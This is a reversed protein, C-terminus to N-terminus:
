RDTGPLLRSIALGSASEYAAWRMATLAHLGGPIGRPPRRRKQARFSAQLAQRPTSRPAFSEHVPPYNGGPARSPPMEGNAAGVHAKRRTQFSTRDRHTFVSSECFRRLPGNRHHDLRRRPIEETIAISGSMTHIHAEGRLAAAEGKPHEKLRRGLEPTDVDHRPRGPIGLRGEANKAASNTPRRASYHARASLKTRASPRRGYASQNFRVPARSWRAFRSHDGM